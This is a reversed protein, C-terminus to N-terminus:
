PMGGLPPNPMPMSRRVISKVSLALMRSTIRKGCRRSRSHHLPTLSACIRALQRILSFLPPSAFYALFERLSPPLSPIRKAPITNSFCNCVFIKGKPPPSQLNLSFITELRRWDSIRVQLKESVVTVRATILVPDLLMMRKGLCKRALDSGLLLDALRRNLEADTAHPFRQRLGVIALNRASANLGALM